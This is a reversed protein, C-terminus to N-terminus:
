ELPGTKNHVKVLLLEGHEVQGVAANGDCFFKCSKSAFHISYVDVPGYVWSHQQLKLFLIPYM